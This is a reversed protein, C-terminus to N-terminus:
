KIQNKIQSKHKELMEQINPKEEKDLLLTTSAAYDYSPKCYVKYNGSYQEVEIFFVENFLALITELYQPDVTQRGTYATIKDTSKDRDKEDRQHFVFIVNGLQIFENFIYECYGRVGSVSDWGQPIWFQKALGLKVIRRLTDQQSMLENEMSKKMYTVSDFIFTDPIPLKQAKAAKFTSLDAEIAKMATPNKQDMDILTKVKYPRNKVYPSMSISAARGDFDYHIIANGPVSSAMWSKGTKPKGVIAIRLYSSLPDLTSADKIGDIYAFPDTTNM